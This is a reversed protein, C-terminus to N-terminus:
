TSRGVNEGGAKALAVAPLGFLSRDSISCSNKHRLIDAKQIEDAGRGRKPRHPCGREQEERRPGEDGRGRAEQRAQYIDDQGVAKGYFRREQTM